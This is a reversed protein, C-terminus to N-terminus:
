VTFGDRYDDRRQIYRDVIEDMVPQNFERLSSLVMTKKGRGVVQGDDKFVFELSVNGRRGDVQLDAGCAELVPTVLNTRDLDISMSEYVVLPRAPNIMVGGERMLPVLVHPFNEGSFAVYSRILKEIVDADTIREGDSCIELYEKGSENALAKCGSPLDILSLSEDDGVMGKFHVRLSKSVGEEVLIKAFLLDGPVCFRKSDVDHIPNFDNAVQKAFQSAQERTFSFRSDAQATFFRTLFM